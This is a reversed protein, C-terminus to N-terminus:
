KSAMQKIVKAPNGLVLSNPPISRTIVSGPGVISDDGISVGKTIISKAAISVRNGIVVTCREINENTPTKRSRDISHFDTDTISSDEILVDNGIIVAFKASIRVGFLSVNDGINIIAEPSHTYLTVYYNKYGRLGSIVCNQGIIVKGKGKIELKNYIKLGKKILVNKKFLKCKIRYCEGRIRAILDKM